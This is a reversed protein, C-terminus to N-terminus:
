LPQQFIVSKFNNPNGLKAIRINDKYVLVEQENYIVNVIQKHHQYPVSYYHKHDKIWIHYNYSVTLNLFRRIHYLSAPLPLLHERETEEFLQRRSIDRNHFNRNNYVELQQKVAENLEELSFYTQNRLPAYIRQYVNKVANEVLAKDKPKYSRTPLIVTSYHCAFDHYTHNIEPEYNSARKVASKLNDITINM